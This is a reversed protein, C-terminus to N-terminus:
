PHSRAPHRRPVEGVGNARTRGVGIREATTSGDKLRYLAVRGARRLGKAKAIRLTALVVLDEDTAKYKVSIRPVAFVKAPPYVVGDAVLRLRTNRTVTTAVEFGKRRSVSGGVTRYGRAGFPFPDAQLYVARPGVLGHGDSVVKGTIPVNDGTAVVNRPFTARLSLPGEVANRLAALGSVTPVLLLGPLRRRRVDTVPAYAGDGPLFGTWREAGTAGDLAGLVLGADATAAVEWVIGDVVAPRLFTVGPLPPKWTWRPAFTGADRAQLAGAPNGIPNAFLLGAGVTGPGGSPAIMTGDSALFAPGDEGIVVAGTLLTRTGADQACGAQWQVTGLTVDLSAGRCAGSAYVRLGAAAPRAGIIGVPTRWLVAGSSGQRAVVAGAANGTLLVGNVVVPGTSGADPDGWQARGTAADLAVVGAPGALYVRSGDAALEVPATIPVAWQRSGDSANLAVVETATEVVVRSGVAVAAQVASAPALWALELPPRLGTGAWENRHAADGGLTPSEAGATPPPTAPILQASAPAAAFAAAACAGLLVQRLGFM